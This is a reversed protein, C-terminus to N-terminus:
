GLLALIASASEAEAVPATGGGATGGKRIRATLGTSSTPKTIPLLVNHSLIGNSIYTHVKDVEINFVDCMDERPSVSKINDSKLLNDSMVWLPDGINMDSIKIEGNPRSWTFLPHDETCTLEYGLETKLTFVKKNLTKVFGKISFYGFKSESFDFSYVKDSEKLNQIEVDGRETKIITGEAVCYANLTLYSQSGSHPINCVHGDTYPCSSSSELSVNGAETIYPDVLYFGNEYDVFSNTIVGPEEGMGDPGSQGALSNVQNQSTIRKFFKQYKRPELMDRFQGYSDSRFVASSFTPVINEIGYAFGTARGQCREQAKFEIRAFRRTGQFNFQFGKKFLIADRVHPEDNGNVMRWGPRRLDMLETGLILATDASTTGVNSVRVGFSNLNSMLDTNDVIKRTVETKYPYAFINSYLKGDARGISGSNGILSGRKARRGSGTYANISGSIYNRGSKTTGVDFGSRKGFDMIDPMVTDWIQESYDILKVARLLKSSGRASNRIKINEKRFGDKDRMMQASNNAGATSYKPPDGAYFGLGVSPHFDQLYFDNLLSFVHDRGTVIGYKGRLYQGKTSGIAPRSTNKLVPNKTSMSGLIIRSTYSSSLDSRSELLFQDNVTRSGIDEHIADSTINQNLSFLMEKNQKIRSGYLTISAEGSRIKLYSGSIGNIRTQDTTGSYGKYKEGADTLRGNFTLNFGLQLYSENYGTGFTGTTTTSAIGADVGIIIEDDPLLVYPSPTSTPANGFNIPGNFSADAPGSATLFLTSNLSRNEFSGRKGLPGKLPKMDEPLEPVFGAFCSENFSATLRTVKHISGILSNTGGVNGNGFRHIINARKTDMPTIPWFSSNFNMGADRHNIGSSASAIAVTAGYTPAASISKVDSPSYLSGSLNFPGTGGPWYDQVYTAGFPCIYIGLKDVGSVEKTQMKRTPFRSGGNFQGTAVAPIMKIRIKGTFTALPQTNSLGSGTVPYSLDISVNPNHPLGLQQVSAKVSSNWANPNYASVSASAILFRQSGSADQISDKKYSKTRAQRYMFFTYNDIDRTAGYVLENAIARQEASGSYFNGGKMRVEIPIVIEAKEFVFPDAIYDKMRFCNSSTAHYVSAFPANGSITPAGIHKYGLDVLSDYDGALFGEHGGMSFQYSKVTKSLAIAPSSNDVHQFGGGEPRLLGLNQTSNGNLLMHTSGYWMTYEQSHGSGPDTLGIHDWRKTDKNYYMFGTFDSGAFESQTDVKIKNSDNAGFNEVLRSNYRSAYSDESSNLSLKINIKDDLPSSFGLYELPSTGTLYWVNGPDIYIRSDDYPEFNVRESINERGLIEGRQDISFDISQDSVFPKISGSSSIIPNSSTVNPKAILNDHHASNGPLVMPYQVSTKEYVITRSDDFQIPLKRRLTSTRGTTRARTPYSGTTEDRQRILVREPLNLYGSVPEGSNKVTYSYLALIDHDALLTKWVAVESIKADIENGGAADSGINLNESFDSQMGIYSGGTTRNMEQKKGNVWIQMGLNANGSNSGRGDYTAVIHFWGSQFASIDAYNSEAAQFNTTNQSGILSFFVKSGKRSIFWEDGKTIINVPTAYSPDDLKVLASVTFPQDSVPTPSVGDGRNSFSLAGNPDQVSASSNALNNFHAFKHSRRQDSDGIVPNGVYTLTFGNKDIVDVPAIPKMQMWLTLLSGKNYKNGALDYFDKRIDYEANSKLIKPM